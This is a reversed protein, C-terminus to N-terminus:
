LLPDKKKLIISLITQLYTGCSAISVILITRKHLRLFLFGPISGCDGPGSAFVRSM